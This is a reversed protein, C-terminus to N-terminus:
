EAAEELKPLLAKLAREVLSSLDGKKRTLARLRAETEDSVSVIIRGM